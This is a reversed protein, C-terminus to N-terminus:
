YGSLGDGGNDDDDDGGSDGGGVGGFADGLDVRLKGVEDGPPDDGSEICGKFHFDIWGTSAEDVAKIKFSMTGPKNPSGSEFDFSIPTVVLTGEGGEDQYVRYSIYETVNRTCVKIIAEEGIEIVLTKDGTEGVSLGDIECVWVKKKIGAPCNESDKYEDEKDQNHKVVGGANGPNEPDSSECWVGHKKIEEGKADLLPNGDKDIQIVMGSTLTFSNPCQYILDKTKLDHGVLTAKERTPVNEEKYIKSRKEQEVEEFETPYVIRTAPSYTIYHIYPNFIAKGQLDRLFFPIGGIYPGGLSNRVAVAGLGGLPDSVLSNRISGTSPPSNEDQPTLDTAYTNFIGSVEFYEEWTVSGPPKTGTPNPFEETLDKRHQHRVDFTNSEGSALVIGSANLERVSEPLGVNQQQPHTM